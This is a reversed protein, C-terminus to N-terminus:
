VAPYGLRIRVHNSLSTHKDEAAKKLLEQYEAETFRIGIQKKHASAGQRLVAATLPAPKAPLTAKVPKRNKSTVTNM